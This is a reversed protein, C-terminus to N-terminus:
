QREQGLQAPPTTRQTSWYMHRRSPHRLRHVQGRRAMAALQRYVAENTLGATSRREPQRGSPHPADNLKGIQDDACQTPNIKVTQM